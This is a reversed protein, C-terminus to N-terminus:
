KKRKKPEGDPTKEVERVKRHGFPCTLVKVKHARGADGSVIALPFTAKCTACYALRAM